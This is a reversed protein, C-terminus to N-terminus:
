PEGDWSSSEVKSNPSIITAIDTLKETLKEQCGWPAKISDGHQPQKPIGTWALPKNVIANSIRGYYLASRDQPDPRGALAQM